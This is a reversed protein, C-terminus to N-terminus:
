RMFKKNKRCKKISLVTYLSSLFASSPSLSRFRCLVELRSDFEPQRSCLQATHWRVLWSAIPASANFINLAILLALTPWGVWLQQNTRKEQCSNCRNLCMVDKHSVKWISVGFRRLALPSDLSCPFLVLSSSSWYAMHWYFSFKRDQWHWPACM